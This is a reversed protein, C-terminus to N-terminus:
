SPTAAAKKAKDQEEMKRRAALIMEERRRQLNSQREEKNASWAAKKGKDEAPESTESIRNALNYKTILDPHLSKPASAAPRATTSAPAAPM